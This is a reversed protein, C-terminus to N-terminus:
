ANKQKFFYICILPLTFQFIAIFFTQIIRVISLSSFYGNANFWSQLAQTTATLGSAIAGLVILHLLLGSVFISMLYCVLCTVVVISWVITVTSFFARTRELENALIVFTKELRLTIGVALTMVLGLWSAFLGFQDPTFIRAIFISAIVPISQAVVSGSLVTLLAAWFRSQLVKILWSPFWVSNAAESAKLNDKGPKM